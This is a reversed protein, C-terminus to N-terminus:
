EGIYAIITGSALNIEKWRGYMTLGRPFVNSVDVALGGSGTITTESDSSADHATQANGSSDETSIYELGIDSDQYAVLGGHSDFTSDTIITIAIFVRGTPPRLLGSQDAFLSGLQGFGYDTINDKYAM